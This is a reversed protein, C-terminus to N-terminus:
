DTGVAHTFLRAFINIGKFKEPNEIPFSISKIAIKVM